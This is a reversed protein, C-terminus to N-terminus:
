LVFFDGLPIIRVPAHYMKKLDSEEWKSFIQLRHSVKKEVGFPSDKDFLYDSILYLKVSNDSLLVIAHFNWTSGSFCFNGYLTIM